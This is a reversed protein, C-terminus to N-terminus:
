SKNNDKDDSNTNNLESGDSGDERGTNVATENDASEVYTSTLTVVEDPQITSIEKSVESNSSLEFGEPIINNLFVDTVVKDNTNSVKLTVVIQEGSKYSNKDTSLMVELGDQSVSAAFAPVAMASVCLLIAM